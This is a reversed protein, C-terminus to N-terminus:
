VTIQDQIKHFVGEKIGPIKMLDEPKSFAGHAERYRIIEGAKSEGIGPLTMLEQATARNLNVKESSQIGSTGDSGMDTGTGLGAEEWKQAKEESPVEIKQGDTIPEALNLWTPAATETMGGAAQVADEIRSGAPLEYVGPSTVEGCIYIRIMETQGTDPQQVEDGEASNEKTRDTLEEATEESETEENEAATKTERASDYLVARGKCGTLGSVMCFSLFLVM